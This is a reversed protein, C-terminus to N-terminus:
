NQKQPKGESKPQGKAKADSKETSSASKVSELFRQAYLAITAVKKM